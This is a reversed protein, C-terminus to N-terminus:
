KSRKNLILYAICELILAAAWVVIMFPFGGGISGILKLTFLMTVLGIGRGIINAVTYFGFNFKVAGACLCLIDDPFLPFLVTLFYWIKGKTNLITSWKEYDEESGACWKIAKKGFKYGLFYALLCGAIYASLVILIYKISLTNIGIATCASLVVYAPINLITVQLFMILWIAVWTWDGANVILDNFWNLVPEISFIIEFVLMLLTAIIAVKLLKKIQEKNM